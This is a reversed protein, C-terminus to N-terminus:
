AQDRIYNAGQPMPIKSTIDRQLKHLARLERPSTVDAPNRLREYTDHTMQKCEFSISTHFQVEFRQGTGTERWQTNIGKYESNTWYNKLKIMEFGSSKLRDIDLQVGDCYDHEEYRFTYRVSDPVMALAQTPSFGPLERMYETAKELIRDRGKLCFQMGALSRGPQQAEVARLKCTIGDAALQVKDCGDALEREVASSPEKREPKHDSQPWRDQHRRWAEAFGAKTREWTNRPNDPSSPHGPLLNALRARLDTPARRPLDAPAEPAPLTDGHRRRM